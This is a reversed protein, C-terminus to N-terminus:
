LIQKMWCLAFAKLSMIGSKLKMLQLMTYGLQISLSTKGSKRLGFIGIAQNRLLEEKLLKILDIRGFFTLADGIANTDSFLNAGPLYRDTYQALLGSSANNIFAQDVAAFPIPIVTFNDSFLVETMRTRFTPDPRDHYLVIGAQKQSNQALLKSYEILKSVDDSNPQKIAILVTLPVYAQLGGSIYTIILSYKDQRYWKADAQELFQIALHLNYKEINSSDITRYAQLKIIEKLNESQQRYIAIENNKGELEAKYKRELDKLLLEYIEESMSLKVFVPIIQLLIFLLSIFWSIQRVTSDRSSIRELALFSGLLSSSEQNFLEPNVEIVNSIIKEQDKILNLLQTDLIEIEEEMGVIDSRVKILNSLINKSIPGFGAIGSVGQGGSELELEKSLNKEAKQLEQIISVKTTKDKALSNIQNQLNQYSINNEAINRAIKNERETRVFTTETQIEREFIKLKLPESIIFGITVALALRTLVPLFQDMFSISSERRRITLIIFRDLNLIISGWLVGLVVALLETQFIALAAYGGSFSALIGTFLVSAGISTYKGHEVRFSPNQIIEEDLGACFFLIKKIIKIM